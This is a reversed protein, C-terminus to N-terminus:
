LLMQFSAPGGTLISRYHKQLLMYGIINQGVKALVKVLTFTFIEEKRRSTIFISM